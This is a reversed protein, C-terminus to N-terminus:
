LMKLTIFLPLSANNVCSDGTVSNILSFSARRKRQQPALLNPSSCPNYISGKGNRDVGTTRAFVADLMPVLQNSKILLRQSM